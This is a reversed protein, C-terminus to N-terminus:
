AIQTKLFFPLKAAGHMHLDFVIKPLWNEGTKVHTRSILSLNDLKAVVVKVEQDM